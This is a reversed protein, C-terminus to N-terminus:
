AEKQVMGGYKVGLAILNFRFPYSYWMKEVARRNVGWAAAMEAVTVGHVAAAQAPTMNCGM